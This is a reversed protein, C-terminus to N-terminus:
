RGGAPGDIARDVLARLEEEGPPDAILELQRSRGLVAEVVDAARDPREALARLGPTGGALERLRGAVAEAAGAVGLADGLAHIAAPARDAMSEVVLPLVVANTEAHPSGVTHVLSQSVVHHFSLSTGDLAYGCLLAGLGLEDHDFGGGAVADLGSAIFRVGEAAALSSVPNAIRVWLAEAAHAVANMASARLTAEPASDLAAPDWLVLRPRVMSGSRGEPMRHVATMEAGSLTTPLAAAAGRGRAAVVAKASDILRGGGFAVLLDPLESEVLPASLEAVPGPGLQVVETAGEGVGPPLASAARPSCLVAYPEDRDSLIEAARDHCARGFVVRREGDRWDFGGSPDLGPLLARTDIDTM